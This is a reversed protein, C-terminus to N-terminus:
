IGDSPQILERTTGRERLLIWLVAAALFDLVGLSAFLPHYGMGDALAGVVLSFALGGIWAASGALGTATAVVRSNFVDASLTMLAGSLMQHAFGGVCFLVIAMAGSDAFGICAPGIMLSTGLTMVWKRSTLLSAGFRRMLWPALYGGCLSGADAALFPLWAFAAVQKLDMHRVEFLYLPIFFNFTQWAPEALFRPIAISWFERTVLVAHWADAKGVPPSSSRGDLIYAREAAGLKPDNEPQRYGAYWLAAWIFGLGGTVVFASQWGWHLICFIVLPPAIMGGLSSGINFWGTAVTREKPPFWESVVKLGAPIAASETMGLLGRLSALSLWGTAFVHACNSLSWGIAFLAFGLRLGLTDLLWGAIPQMVTYAGQFTAVVWSYERTSMAFVTKLTPAAVSLSSRALYNLVTGIAVLSIIWWRRGHSLM